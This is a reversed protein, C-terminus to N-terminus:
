AAFIKIENEIGSIYYVNKWMMVKRVTKLKLDGM